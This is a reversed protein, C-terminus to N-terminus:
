ASRLPTPALLCQLSASAPPVCESWQLKGGGKKQKKLWGLAQVHCLARTHSLSGSARTLRLMTGGTLAGLTHLSTARVRERDNDCFELADAVQQRTFGANLLPDSM